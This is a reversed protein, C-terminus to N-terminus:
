NQTMKQFLFLDFVVIYVTYLYQMDTDIILAPCLKKLILARIGLERKLKYEPFLMSKNSM